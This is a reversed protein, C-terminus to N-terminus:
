YHLYIYLSHKLEFFYVYIKLKPRNKELFIIPINIIKIKYMIKEISFNKGKNSKIRPNFAKNYIDCFKYM